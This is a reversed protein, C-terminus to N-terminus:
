GGVAGGVSGFAGPRLRCSGGVDFGFFGDDRTSDSGTEDSNRLFRKDAFARSHVRILAFVFSIKSNM